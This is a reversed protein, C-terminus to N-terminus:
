SQPLFIRAKANAHGSFPPFLIGWGKLDLISLGPLRCCRSDFRCSDPPGWSSPLITSNRTSAWGRPSKESGGRAHDAHCFMRLDVKGM